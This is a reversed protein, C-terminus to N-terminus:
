EKIQLKSIYNMPDVKIGNVRIEFHLHAGTSRGSHGMKGIVQGQKVEDGAFVTISNKALHAYIAVSGDAHEIKVYNGFGGGDNNKLSGNDSYAIQYSSTPYIVKGSKVSIINIVGPGYGGNGIDIAGHGKTRFDEQSGFQSTITTSAPEGNDYTINDTTTGVPWSYGNSENVNSYGALSSSSGSSGGFISNVDIIGLAILPSILIVVFIVTSLFSGAIGGILIIKKKLPIKNLLGQVETEAGSAGTSENEIASANESTSSSNENYQDTAGSTQNRMEMGSNQHPIGYGRAKNQRIQNQNRVQNGQKNPMKKNTNNSNNLSNNKEKKNSMFKNFMNKTFNM